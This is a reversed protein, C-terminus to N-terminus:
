KDSCPRGVEKWLIKEWTARDIKPRKGAWKHGKGLVDMPVGLPRKCGVTETPSFHGNQRTGPLPIALRRKRPQLAGKEAREIDYAYAKQCQESHFRKQGKPKFTERCNRYACEVTESM